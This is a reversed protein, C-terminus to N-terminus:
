MYCHHLLAWSKERFIAFKLELPPITGTTLDSAGPEPYFAEFGKRGEM